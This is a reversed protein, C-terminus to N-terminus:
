DNSINHLPGEPKFDFNEKSIQHKALHSFLEFNNIAGFINKGIQVKCIRYKQRDRFASLKFCPTIKM